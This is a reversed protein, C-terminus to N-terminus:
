LPRQRAAPSPQGPPPSPGRCRARGPGRAAGDGRRELLDTRLDGTALRGDTRAPWTVSTRMFASARSAASLALDGLLHVISAHMSLDIEQGEGTLRRRRFGGRLALVAFRGAIQDAYIDSGARMPPYSEDGVMANLGGAAETAPGPSDYWSLRLVIVDPRVARLGAYDLGFRQMVGPRLNSCVIDARAILQDALARGGGHALNLALAQKNIRM